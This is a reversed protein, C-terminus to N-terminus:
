TLSIDYVCRIKNAIHICIAEIVVPHRIINFNIYFIIIADIIFDLSGCKDVYLIHKAEM